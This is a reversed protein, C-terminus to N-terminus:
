FPIGINIYTHLRNAPYSYMSTVEILGLPTKYAMSPGGGYIMHPKDIISDTFIDYVLSNLKASIFLNHSIEKRIGILISAVSSTVITGEELGVFTVQNRISRNIGGILFSNLISEKANFNIGLQLNTFVTASRSITKYFEYNINTYYYHNFKFGISGEDGIVKSNELIQFNPAQNYLVGFEFEMKSGVNPLVRSNLSNQQIFFYNNFWQVVGDFQLGLVLEPKYNLREFRIGTGYVYNPITTSQLKVNSAIYNKNYLGVKVNENYTNLKINEIQADIVASWKKEAGLFQIHSAKFRLNNGMNLTFQSESEHNTLTSTTLNLLVSNKTFSNYNLGLSVTTPIRNEIDLEVDVSDGKIHIFSYSLKRYKNSAFSARLTKILSDVTYYKNRGLKLYEISKLLEPNNLRSIFSNVFILDSRKIDIKTKKVQKANLSDALSKFKPYMLNGLENGLEIIDNTSSFSSSHLNPLDHKIYMDCLDKEELFDKTDKLFAIRILVDLPNNVNTKITLDQAVDSGITYTAGMKIVDRIPFNRVIGGDVLIREDITVPTFLSPIAMSARISKVLNGENLVVVEGTSIDTAICSFPIPLESFKKIKFVPFLLENLRLWLEQSEVMGADFQFKRKNFSIEFLFKNYNNKKLIDLSEYNPKNSFISGWNINEVITEIEKGSYGTAYLAGIVAGMSTGTIYDIKLGASDIAKLIGIHALGKAGGGSLTLGIKRNAITDQGHSHISLSLGLAILLITFVFKFSSKEIKYLKGM